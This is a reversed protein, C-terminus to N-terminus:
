AFAFGYHKVAANLIKVKIKENLAIVSIQNKYLYEKLYILKETTLYGFGSKDSLYEIDSLHKELLYIRDSYILHRNQKSYKFDNRNELANYTYRYGDSIKYDSYVTHGIPLKGAGKGKYFQSGLNESYIKIGNIENDVGYLESEQHVLTPLVSIFIENRVNKVSALLKIKLGHKRAFSIDNQSINEIGIHLAENPLILKGYVHASLLLLKYLSDYGGVDSVPNEEAFGKEKAQQLAESYSIGKTLLQTLIYNSTGNFIGKIESINDFRYFDNVIRVIPISGCVAGEYLLRGGFEKEMKIFEELHYVIAKKNASVVKKGNQLAEKIIRYAQEEDSILEVITDTESQFLHCTDTTFKVNHKNRNKGSNKIVIEKVKREEGHQQLYTYFGQGVTGFGLLGIKNKNSM